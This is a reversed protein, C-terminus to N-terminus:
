QVPAFFMGSFEASLGAAAGTSNTLVIRLKVHGRLNYILYTGNQSVPSLLQSDLVANTNGDLIEVTQIRLEHHWDTIYFATQHTQNDIFNLDVIITPPNNALNVYATGYHTLDTPSRQLGQPQNPTDAQGKWTFTNAGNLNLDVYFPVSLTGAPIANVTPGLDGPSTDYGPSILFGDSGYTGVWSGSSTTDRKVFSASPAPATGNSITITYGPSTSTLGLNDSAIATLTYIGDPVGPSAWMQTFTPGTGTMPVGLNQPTGNQPTLQIQVSAIGQASTANASISVPGSLFGGTPSNIDVSPPTLGTFSRFFIGNLLINPSGGANSIQVVIHGRVNFVLYVGNSFGPLQQTVLVQNTDGNLLQVTEKRTTTDIDVMYLALQHLQGDTMNIDFSFSNANSYFTSAIRETVVNSGKQLARVDGSSINWTYPTAGNSSVTAYGPPLNSDNPIIFGDAGYVGKWNGQTVLDSKVFIASTTPAAITITVPVSESSQPVPQLDTAVATFTHQGSLTGTNWQLSYTPGAGTVAAGINSGDLKFQVSAIGAASIANASLTVVGSISSGATPQTISIAPATVTNSTSITVQSSLATQGASDVAVATLVHSGNLALASNWQTSYNPGAGLVPATIANGDLRFQVSAMTSPSNAVAMASLTAIGSLTGSIPSTINVSPPPPPPPPAELTKFFLGNVLANPGGTLTVKVLVHGGIDFVVYVGGGFTAMAKSTLVANTNADLISITEARTNGGDLDWLYLALEHKNVDSFNIDFTFSTPSYYTSAIRLTDSNGRLLARPDTWTNSNWSFAAGNAPASVTTSDPLSNSDNPIIYGDAGYVGKWNGLTAPDVKIFAGSPSPNSVTVNLRASETTRAPVNTDTAVATLFHAGSLGTSDWTISYNSGNGSTQLTGLNNGDLKFQVSAIGKPSTANATVTVLGTVAGPAPATMTIVPPGDPNNTTIQVAASATVQDLSDTAVATLTHSGNTVGRSDWPMTYSPGGTLPAGIAVGDLKFQVTKMTAPANATATATLTALSSLVAGSSPTTISVSPAPPPPPPTAFFLGNIVASQGGNFTLTVLVHGSVQFVAYVGNTFNTILKTALVNNNNADLISITQTRGFNEFDVMYIALEHIQTDAFQMDFSTSTYTYFASAIKDTSSSSKLLARSDTSPNPIYLYSNGGAGPGTVTAYSPVNTSDFPIIDGDAGYTNKWNSQTLTDTKIFKASNIPNALTITVPASTASQAPVAKNIAVATLVHAGNSLTTTDLSYSYAPGAGTQPAGLNAGDLKFQISAIGQSSFANAGVTVTGTVPGSAPSTITIIPTGDGSNTTSFNVGASTTSQGLSDVAVATITHAGNLVSATNWQMTYIPGGFIIPTGVASGDVLFQVSAMTAPSTASANATLAITQSVSANPTPTVVSVSPAPPPPPPTAFFMGNIVASQGGNYSLRLIVHGTVQFVAYVGGSFNSIQKTVLVANTDANLISLTQTRNFGEFDVMYLALEHTNPDTFYM